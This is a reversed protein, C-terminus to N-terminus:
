QLAELLAARMVQLELLAPRLLEMAPFYGQNALRALQNVNSGIKGLEALLRTLEVRDAGVRKRKSRPPAGILKQRAYDAQSLGAAEAAARLQALEEANLRYTSVHLRPATNTPKPTKQTM